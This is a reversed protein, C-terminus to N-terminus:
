QTPQQMVGQNLLQQSLQSATQPNVQQVNATNIVNLNQNLNQANIQQQVQQQVQSVTQQTQNQQQAQTQQQQEQQQKQLAMDALEKSSLFRGGPGRPRKMAHKHRSEHLYGKVKKPNKNYAEWKTRAERRKLIRHYQKANVYLPEEGTNQVVGASAGGVAAAAAM